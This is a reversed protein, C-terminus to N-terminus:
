DDEEEELEEDQPKPQEEQATEQREQPTSTDFEKVTSALLGTEIKVLPAQHQLSGQLKGLQQEILQKAQETGAFLKVTLVGEKRELQVVVEGLQEPYLRISMRTSGDAGKLFPAQQLAAEIRKALQEDVNSQPVLHPMPVTRDSKVFLTSSFALPLATGESDVTGKLPESRTLGEGLKMSAPLTQALAAQRTVPLVTQVVRGTKVEGEATKVVKGVPMDEVPQLQGAIPKTVGLISVITATILQGVSAPLQQLMATAQEADGEQITKVLQVLETMGKPDQELAELQPHDLLLLAQEPQATLMKVLQGENSQPTTTSPVTNEPLLSPEPTTFLQLLSAFSGMGEASPASQGVSKATGKVPQNQQVDTLNM